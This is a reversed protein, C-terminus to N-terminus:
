WWARCPRGPSPTGWMGCVKDPLMDKIIRDGARMQGICALTYVAQSLAHGLDLALKHTYKDLSVPSGSTVLLAGLDQDACHLPVVLFCHM